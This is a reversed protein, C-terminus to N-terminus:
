RDREPEEDLEDQIIDIEACLEEYTAGHAKLSNDGVFGDEDWLVDYDPHTATWDFSRNPIPKPDYSVEWDRYFLDVM